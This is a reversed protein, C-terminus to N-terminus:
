AGAAAGGHGQAVGRGPLRRQRRGQQGGGGLPRGPQRVSPTLGHRAQRSRGPFAGDARGKKAPKKFGDLLLQGWNIGRLREYKQALRAWAHRFADHRPWLKLRRQVTKYSPFGVPAVGLERGLLGADGARRKLSPRGAFTNVGAHGIDPVLFPFVQRVPQLVERVPQHVGDRALHGLGVQLPEADAQAYRHVLHPQAALLGRADLSMVEGVFLPM